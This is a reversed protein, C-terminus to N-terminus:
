LKEKWTRPMDPSDLELSDRYKWAQPGLSKAWQAMKHIGEKLSTSTMYGLLSVAKDYTCYAYKVELPRDPLYVIECQVGFEKQVLGALTNITEEEIPGLNLVEGNTKSNFM